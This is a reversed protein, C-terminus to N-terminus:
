DTQKKKLKQPSNELVFRHIEDSSHQKSPYLQIIKDADNKVEDM